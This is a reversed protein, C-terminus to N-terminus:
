INSPDPTRIEAPGNSRTITKALIVDPSLLLRTYGTQRPIRVLSDEGKGETVTKQLVLTRFETVDLCGKEILLYSPKCFSLSRRKFDLNSLEPIAMM